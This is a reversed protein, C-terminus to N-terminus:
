SFLQYVKAAQSSKNVKALEDGVADREAKCTQLMSAYLALLRELSARLALADDGTAYLAEDVFLRCDLDLEAIRTWDRAKLAAAMQEYVLEVREVPTKQMAVNM